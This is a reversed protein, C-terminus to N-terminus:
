NRTNENRKVKLKRKMVNRVKQLKRVKMIQIVQQERKYYTVEYIKIKNQHIYKGKSHVEM